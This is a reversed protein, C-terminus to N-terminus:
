RALAVIGCQGGFLGPHGDAAARRSSFFRDHQAFTCARLMSISAEALGASVLERRCAEAVDLGAGGDEDRPGALGELGGFRAEFQELVEPGVRYNAASIAPGIAATMARPSSGYAATMATVAAPAVGGVAGRWGAHIAAVAPRQPDFLLVPTCDATQACLGLGPVDTMLADGEGASWRDHPAADVRIVRAGHVQDAFVLTELGLAAAMRRRNETVREAADGRSWALNLSEYPGDSVGGTRTTFAHIVRSGGFGDAQLPKIGTM